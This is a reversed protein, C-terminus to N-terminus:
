LLNYWIKEMAQMNTLILCSCDFKVNSGGMKGYISPENTLYLKVWCFFEENKAGSTLIYTLEM